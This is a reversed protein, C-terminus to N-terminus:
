YSGYDADPCQRDLIPAYPVQWGNVLTAIGNELTDIAPLPVTRNPGMPVIAFWVVAEGLLDALFACGIIEGWRPCHHEGLTGRTIALRRSGDIVLETDISARGDRVAFDPETSDYIWDVFDVERDPPETTAPGVAIPDDDRLVL